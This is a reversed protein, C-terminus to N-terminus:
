RTIVLKGNIRDIGNKNIIVGGNKIIREKERKNTLIHSLSLNKQITENKFVIARVQLFLNKRENTQKNRVDGLNYCHLKNEKKRIITIATGSDLFNEKKSEEENLKEIQKKRNKGEKIKEDKFSQAIM